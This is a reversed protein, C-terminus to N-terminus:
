RIVSVKHVTGQVKVIYIGSEVDFTAATASAAAIRQGEANYVTITSVEPVTVVIQGNVAKVAAVAPADEVEEIVHHAKMRIEFRNDTAGAEATFTYTDNMLDTEAGTLKDVLIVDVDEVKTDLDITYTGKSSFYAGLTIIGNGMPRENIAFQVNNEITYFQAMQVNSNMFKNADRNIDYDCTANPNIVFRTRDSKEGDMLMLNFVQRTEMGRTQPQAKRERVVRNPQRGDAAFTISEADVPRQVFFAEGPRLIYEDDVPSYAYYNEYYMDWVTIPATFDMARTDYYSPYPNGILNWSRNHSFESQYENLAITRDGNAFILNKNANNVASVIFASASQWYGNEDYRSSQWIYGEGARLIDDAGMNQWTNNFNAEARDKGSYKRIVFNTNAQTPLIDSVKVDFPFSLFSWEDNRIEVWLYVSDARMTANNILTAHTIYQGYSRSEWEVDYGLSFDKLSLTANGNVTLATQRDDGENWDISLHPKYQAPLNSPVELTFDQHVRIYEPWCDKIPEITPFEDWGTTLKYKNITWEPVYLTCNEKNVYYLIDYDYELYPPILALCTVTRINGCDYFPRNCYSLTSPLVVEALADCNYFAYDGLSQLGENFEIAALSSCNYFASGEITRLTSPCALTKLHTEYFADWGITTVGEPIDISEVGSGRFTSNGIATATSPWKVTKLADCYEFAYTGVSVVGEPIVVNKLNDCNYFAYNGISKLTTPFVVDQLNHCDRFAYQGISALNEPLVMQQLAYRYEFMYEPIAELSVESMDITLLGTMRNKINNIDDDNLAGSITLYNVQRLYDVQALLTEGLTGPTTVNVNVSVGEGDVIIRNKWYAAAEYAAGNGAPVYVVRINENFYDCSPPTPAECRLTRLKKCNSFPDYGMSVVSAPIVVNDLVQCESFAYRGINQLSNSLSIETMSSCESFAHEGIRTVSNPLTMSQLSSCGYFAQDGVYEVYSPIQVETLGKCYYFAYAGVFRLTAPLTVSKLHYYGNNYNYQWTNYYYYYEGIGVTVYEVDEYTFTEPIVVESAYGQYQNVCAVNHTKDLTLYWDGVTVSHSFNFSSTEVGEIRYLNRATVLSNYANAFEEATSTTKNKQVIKATQIAASLSASAREAVLKDCDAILADLGNYAAIGAEITAILGYMRQKEAVIADLSTEDITNTVAYAQEFAQKMKTLGLSEITAIYSLASERTENLVALQAEITLPVLYSVEVTKPNGNTTYRTVWGFNFESLAVGEPLTVQLYHYSKDMASSSWASHWWTTKDGDCINRIPGEYAEQANTTFNSEALAVVNGDGDYIYFESICVWPFGSRDNGGAGYSSHNELFTFRISNVPSAVSYQESTFEYRDSVVTSITGDGEGVTALSKWEDTQASTFIPLVCAVVLSLLNLCRNKM